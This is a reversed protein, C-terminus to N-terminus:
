SISDIYAKIAFYRKFVMHPAVRPHSISEQYAELIEKPLFGKIFKKLSSEVHVKDKRDIRTVHSAYREAIASEEIVSSLLGPELIQEVMEKLVLDPLNLMPEGNRWTPQNSIPIQNVEPSSGMALAERALQKNNRHRVNTRSLRRVLSKTQLPFAVATTQAQLQAIALTFRPNRNKRYSKHRWADVAAGRLQLSVEQQEQFTAEINVRRQYSPTLVWNLDDKYNLNLLRASRYLSDSHPGYGIVHDGRLVCDFESAVNAFYDM